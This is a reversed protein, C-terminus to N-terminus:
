VFSASYSLMDDGAPTALVVTDVAVLMPAVAEGDEDLAGDVGVVLIEQRHEAVVAVGDHLAERIARPPVQSEERALSAVAVEYAPLSDASPARALGLGLHQKDSPTQAAYAEPAAAQMAAPTPGLESYVPLKSCIFAACAHATAPVPAGPPALSACSVRPFMSGVYKSDYENAAYGYRERATRLHSVPPDPTLEVRAYLPAPAPMLGYTLLHRLARHCQAAALAVRRAAPEPLPPPPLVSVYTPTPHLFRERVSEQGSLRMCGYVGCAAM